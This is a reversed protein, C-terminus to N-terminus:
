SITDQEFESTYKESVEEEEEDVESANRINQCTSLEDDISQEGSLNSDHELIISTTNSTNQNEEACNKSLLPADFEHVILDPQRFLAPTSLCQPDDECRNDFSISTDPAEPLLEAKILEDVLESATHDITQYLEDIAEQILDKTLDECVRAVPTDPLNNFTTSPGLYFWMNKIQSDRKTKTQLLHRHLKVPLILPPFHSLASSKNDEPISLSEMKSDPADKKSFSSQISENSPNPCTFPKYKLHSHFDGHLSSCTDLKHNTCTSQFKVPPPPNYNTLSHLGNSIPTLKNAWRRRIENEEIEAEDIQLLLERMASCLVNDHTSYSEKTNIDPQSSSIRSHHNNVSTYVPRQLNEERFTDSKDPQLIVVDSRNLNLSDVAEKWLSHIKSDYHNDVDSSILNSSVSYHDDKSKRGNFSTSRQLKSPYKTNSSAHVSRPRLIVPKTRIISGSVSSSKPRNISRKVPPKKVIESHKISERPSAKDLLYNQQLEELAASYQSMKAQLQRIRSEQSNRLQRETPEHLARRRSPTWSDTDRIPPSDSRAPMKNECTRQQITDATSNCIIRPSDDKLASIRPTSLIPKCKRRLNRNVKTLSQDFQDDVSLSIPKVNYNQAADYISANDEYDNSSLCKVDRKAIHVALLLRDRDIYQFGTSGKM